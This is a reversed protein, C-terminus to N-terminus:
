RYWRRSRSGLITALVVATITRPIPGVLATVTILVVFAAFFVAVGRWDLDVTRM